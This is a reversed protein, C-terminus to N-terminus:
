KRRASEKINRLIAALNHDLVDQVLHPTEENLVMQLEYSLTALKKQLAQRVMGAVANSLHPKLKDHLSQMLEQESIVKIRRTSPLEPLDYVHVAIEPLRVEAAPAATRDDASTDESAPLTEMGHKGHLLVTKKANLYRRNRESQLATQAALWDEQILIGLDKEADAGLQANHEAECQRLYERYAADLEQDGFVVGDGDSRGRNGSETHRSITIGTPLPSETGNQRNRSRLEQLSREWDDAQIAPTEPQSDELTFVFPSPSKSSDTM